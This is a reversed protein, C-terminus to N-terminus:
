RLSAEVKFSEPIVDRGELIFDAMAEGVKPAMGFGIKFGGNAIYRDAIEPDRGLMPARSKARPRVGAWREIVKAGSLEPVAAVARALVDELQEDTAEPEAWERESTSGVAVTGDGHPVIHLGDTYLQPADHRDYRLLVAQGKVGNGVPQDLREALARLGEYGTADVVLGSAESGSEIVGGKRQVAEALAQTAARPHIRASLDDRIVVGTPSAPCWGEWVEEIWWRAKGQWLAKANLGRVEALALGRADAIPQVRGVRRYGPDRGSVEAVKAWWADAMVLSEFQFAKKENWNEPTHPQLAGVIGGSSGAGVHRKEVVRVRAGRTLCEWAVSLGFIGAGLVTIEDTSM